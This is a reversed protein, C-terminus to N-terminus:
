RLYEVASLAAITGDSVATTLQRVSKRRCDGAVFIGETKTKCDEGSDFYGWPNLQAFEAFPDNEPLVVHVRADVVGEIMSITRAIDQALADM